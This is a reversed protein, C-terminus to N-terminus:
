EILRQPQGNLLSAIKDLAAFQEERERVEKRFEDTTAIVGQITKTVETMLVPTWRRACDYVDIPEGKQPHRGVLRVWEPCGHRLKSCRRKFGAAPCDYDPHETM